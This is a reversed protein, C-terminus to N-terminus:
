SNPQLKGSYKIVETNWRNYFYTLADELYDLDGGVIKTVRDVLMSERFKLAEHIEKTYFCKGLNGQRYAVGFYESHYIQIGSILGHSNWKFIKDIREKIKVSPDHLMPKKISGDSIRSNRVSRTSGDEFEILIDENDRVELITYWDGKFTKFKDGVSPLCSRRIDFSRTPYTEISSEVKQLTRNKRRDFFEIVRCELDKPLNLSLIYETKVTHYHNIADKVNVFSRSYVVDACRPSSTYKGGDEYIAVLNYGSSKKEGTIFTNLWAPIFICNGPSYQNNDTLLDKDLDKGEWDQKEMWSKFNSFTHWEQCVTTERYSNYRKDNAIRYCRNLMASWTKYFPCVWERSRKGNIDKGFRVVPYDSDNVGVGAVLKNSKRKM